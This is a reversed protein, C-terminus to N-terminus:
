RVRSSIFATRSCTGPMLLAEGMISNVVADRNGAAFLTVDQHEANGPLIQINAVQFHQRAAEEVIGIGLRAVLDRDDRLLQGGCEVTRGIRSDPWSILSLPSGKVTMPVKRSRTSVKPCDSIESSVM